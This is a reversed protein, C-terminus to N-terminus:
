KVNNQYTTLKKKSNAVEDYTYKPTRFLFYYGSCGATFSAGLPIANKRLFNM